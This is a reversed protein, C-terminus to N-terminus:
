RLFPNEMREAGITTPSGHGPYVKCTDPLTLLRTVISEILVDPDGGPLDARGISREFLTDGSFLVDETPCYYVVGGPSHGPTHLVKLIHNGVHIEEGDTVHKGAKQLPNALKCGLTNEAWQPMYEYLPLDAAHFRPLVGFERALFGDGFVHDFHAHTCLHHKVVLGKEKIYQAIANEEAPYFAGCDIVVAESSDDSVVYCNEGLMNVQFRRITLM